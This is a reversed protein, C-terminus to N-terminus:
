ILLRKISQILYVEGLEEGVNHKQRNGDTKETNQEAARHPAFSWCHIIFPTIVSPPTVPTQRANSLRSPQMGGWHQALQVVICVRHNALVFWVSTLAACRWHTTVTTHPVRMPPQHSSRRLSFTDKLVDDSCSRLKAGVLLVKRQQSLLNCWMQNSCDLKAQEPMYDISINMNMNGAGRRESM